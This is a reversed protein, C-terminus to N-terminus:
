GRQYPHGQLPPLLIALAGAVAPQALIAAAGALLFLLALVGDAGHVVLWPALAAAAGVTAFFVTAGVDEVAKLRAVAARDGTDRYRRAGDQVVLMPLLAATAIMLLDAFAPAPLHGVASRWLWLAALMFAGLVFLTAAAERWARSVAFAALFVGLASAAWSAPQALAASEALLPGAGFWGLLGLVLVVGALSMAWRPETTRTARRLWSEGAPSAAAAFGTGSSLAMAFLPVGVISSLGGAIVAMAVSLSEARADRFMWGVALVAAAVIGVLLPWGLRVLALRAADIDDQGARQQRVIEGGLCSAVLYCVGYIALFPPPPLATLAAGALLGAAPAVTVIVALAPRRLHVFAVALAICLSLACLFVAGVPITRAQLAFLDAAAMALVLLIPVAIRM